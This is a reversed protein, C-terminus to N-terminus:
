AAASLRAYVDHRPVLVGDDGIRTGGGLVVIGTRSGFPAPLPKAPDYPTRYIVPQALDLLMDTLRGSALLWFIVCIVAAIVTRASRCLVLLAIFAGFFVFLILKFSTVYQKRSTASM